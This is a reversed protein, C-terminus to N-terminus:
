KIYGLSRLREKVEEQGMSSASPIQTLALNFVLVLLGLRLPTKM